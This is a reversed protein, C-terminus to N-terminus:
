MCVACSRKKVCVTLDVNHYFLACSRVLDFVTCLNHTFAFCAMAMQNALQAAAAIHMAAPTPVVSLSLMCSPPTACQYTLTARQYTLTACQYTLARANKDKLTQVKIEKIKKIKKKFSRIRM